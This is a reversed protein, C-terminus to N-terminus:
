PTDIEEQKMNKDEEENIEKDTVLLKTDSGVM